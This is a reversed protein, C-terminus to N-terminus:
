KKASAEKALAEKELLEQMRKQDAAYSPSRHGKLVGSDTNWFVSANAQTAADREYAGDSAAAALAHMQASIVMSIAM